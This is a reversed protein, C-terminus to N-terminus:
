EINFIFNWYLNSSIQKCVTIGRFSVQCRARSLLINDHNKLVVLAWGFFLFCLVVFLPIFAGSTASGYYVTVGPAYLTVLRVYVGIKKRRENLCIFFCSDIRVLGRKKKTWSSFISSGFIRSLLFFFCCSVLFCFM